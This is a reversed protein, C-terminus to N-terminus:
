FKSILTNPTSFIRNKHTQIKLYISTFLYIIGLIHHTFYNKEYLITFKIPVFSMFIPDSYLHIYIITYPLKTFNLSQFM